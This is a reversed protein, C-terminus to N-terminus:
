ILHYLACIMSTIHNHQLYHTLKVIDQPKGELAQKIYEQREKEAFGLADVRVSAGIAFQLSFSAHPHSSVM